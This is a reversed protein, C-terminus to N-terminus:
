DNVAVTDFSILLPPTVQAIVWPAAGHEGPQPVTEGVLPVPLVDEAIKVAGSLTGLGAVTVIVAVEVASGVFDAEAVMVTVTAGGILTLMEGVFGVTSIPAVCCNLAVTLLSGLVRPTVQIKVCLPTAQEGAHPETEGAVVM